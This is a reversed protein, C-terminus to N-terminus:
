DIIDVKLDKLEVTKSEEEQPEGDHVEVENNFVMSNKTFIKRVPVEANVRQENSVEFSEPKKRRIEEISGSKTFVKAVTSQM